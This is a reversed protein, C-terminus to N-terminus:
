IIGKGAKCAMKNKLWGVYFWGALFSQWGKESQCGALYRRNSCQGSM